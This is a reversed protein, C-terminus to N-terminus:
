GEEGEASAAAVEAEAAEQQELWAVAVDDKNKAKRIGELGLLYDAFAGKAEGRGREDFGIEHIVISGPEDEDVPPRLTAGDGVLKLAARGGLGEKVLWM